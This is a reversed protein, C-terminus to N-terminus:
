FWGDTHHFVRPKVAYQSLVHKPRPREDRWRGLVFWEQSFAAPGPGTLAAPKQGHLGVNWGWQVAFVTRKKIAPLWSHCALCKVQNWRQHRVGGGKALGRAHVVEKQPVRRGECQEWSQGSRPVEGCTITRAPPPCFFARVCLCPWLSVCVGASLVCRCTEEGERPFGVGCIEINRRRFEAKSVGTERCDVLPKAKLYQM